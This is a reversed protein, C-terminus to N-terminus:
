SHRKSQKNSTSFWGLYPLSKMTWRLVDLASLHPLEYPKTCQRQNACKYLKVQQHQAHKNRVQWWKDELNLMSTCKMNRQSETGNPVPDLKHEAANKSIKKFIKPRGVQQSSQSFETLHINQNTAKCWGNDILRTCGCDIFVTEQNGASKALGRHPKVTDVCSTKTSPIGTVLFNNPVGSLGVKLPSGGKEARM